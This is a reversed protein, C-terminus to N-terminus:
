ACVVRVAKVVAAVAAVVGSDWWEPLRSLVYVAECRGESRRIAVAAPGIVGATTGLERRLGVHLMGNRASRRRASAASGRTEAGESNLQAMLFVIVM